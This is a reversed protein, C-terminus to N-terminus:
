GGFLLARWEAASRDPHCMMRAFKPNVVNLSTFVFVIRLFALCVCPRNFTLALHPNGGSIFNPNPVDATDAKFFPSLSSVGGRM